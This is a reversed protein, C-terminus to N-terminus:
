AAEFGLVQLRVQYGVVPGDDSGRGNFGKGTVVARVTLTVEELMELKGLAELDDESTRDLTGGFSVTLKSARIGDIRPIPLDYTSADFIAEDAQAVSM